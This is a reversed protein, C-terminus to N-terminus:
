GAYSAEEFFRWIYETTNVADEEIGQPVTLWGHEQNKIVLLRLISNNDCARWNFSVTGGREIGDGGARCKREKSENQVWSSLEPLHRKRSGEFPVQKDSTSHVVLLSATRKSSKCPTYYAGSIGAVARFRDSMRCGAIEAFGGGNSMGVAFIRTDDVCYNSPVDNLLQRMFQIDYDGEHSYPAGQWASFGKKSPLAEPYVAVVPLTNIGSYSEINTAHGGIGDFSVITPYRISADYNAPTHVYYVRERSGVKVTHKTTTDPKLHTFGATACLTRKYSALREASLHNEAELREIQTSLAQTHLVVAIGLAVVAAILVIVWTRRSKHLERLSTGNTVLM